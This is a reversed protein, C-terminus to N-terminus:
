FIILIIKREGIPSYVYRIEKLYRIKMMYIKYDSCNLKKIRM